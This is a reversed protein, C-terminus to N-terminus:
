TEARDGAQDALPAASRLTADPFRRAPDAERRRSKGDWWWRSVYVADVGERRVLQCISLGPLEAYCGWERESTMVFDLDFERILAMCNARAEDDIGAFAEDLLVLRPADARASQYHSSAAAFLPVTLGLAREGSSAPGSLPKWQGDQQRQVRFRHWRRYDLARTLADLLTSRDDRQREAEIRAQLFSGLVSRDDASWADASTRLLRRRAEGLGTPAGDLDEPLPQWDLRYRVGTSTPRKHLETNIATVRDETDRILRQLGVAIDQQLHNELVEQESASLIRRREDIEGAVQRLVADPRQPRQRHVIRVVVCDETLESYADHGQASLAHQLASLDTGLQAQIRRWDDDEAAIQQLAQEIRRALGLAADVGWPLETPPLEVEDIADEILGTGAFAQLGAVAQLRAAQREDLTLRRDVSKQSAAGANEIATQLEAGVSGAHRQDAALASKAAQIRQQLADVQAGVTERLTVLTADLELKAHSREAVDDLASRRDDDARQRRAAQVEHERCARLQERLATLLVALAQGYDHLARDVRDLADAEIPLAVDEADRQLAELARAHAHEAAALRSQAQGLRAQAARRAREAAERAHLAHLLADDAPAADLEAAAAHRESDVQAAAQDLGALAADIEALRAGIQLLRLRRAEARAAYGIYEAAPKIWRGRAPGLRFRGSPAIWAEAADADTASCAIGQLLAQVTAAGIGAAEAEADLAPRLRAALSDAVARRPQLLLEGSAPDRLTGDADLEAALLGAAELAAEIGARAADDTDPTFDLLQWLPRATASGPETARWPLPPPPRDRGAQLASQEDGLARQEQELEGRQQRLAAAREALNAQLQQWELQLVSRLPHAGSMSEAWPEFEALRDLAAGASLMRLGHLHQRWHEGAAAIAVRQANVTQQAEAEAQDFEDARAARDQAALERQQGAQGAERLRRRILELQARRRGIEAQGGRGLQALVPEDVAQDASPLVALLQVHADALGADAATRAAEAEALQRQRLAADRQAVREALARSEEDLRREAGALRQEAQQLLRAADEAQEAVQQLRAASRMLPDAQLVELAARGSGIAQELDARRARLTKVEAQAADREAEAEHLARSANDVETQARRLLRARRRSAIQAYRRYRGAFGSVASGIRELEALERRYDELQSMAEAVDELAVRDLPALAESLADSLRQENPQKSLQPQRLQILTDILAGYREVGLGFLMEDVARRYEAATPHVRGHEGLAEILRERSLATREATTLWLSEGIRQRSSFYWADVAGRGAVARLGAGLTLYHAAGQADLRGFEIWAYGIRREFRGLLLNWEMRKGRDGDPEIRASSLNADFLFPLTLSLVKSKGTGNNGRLLLHGDRFRFEESDYHFLEVLGLRLPQWRRLAPTPLAGADTADRAVSM